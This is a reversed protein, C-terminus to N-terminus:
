VSPKRFRLTMRDSEGISLYFEKDSDGLSLSPPLTWVGKPHNTTDKENSNIESSAEFVFGANKALEIVYEETVYGSNKMTKITAGPKARHQVIGLIGGPKLAKFFLAFANSESNSRLWSHVNRFTLVADVSDNDVTLINQGADFIAIRVNKFLQPDSKIRKVYNDRSRKYYARDSDPNFHAAFLTGELYPALVETYWGGGPSIELVDMEPNLGFFELTSYPNRYKDRSTDRESQVSLATISLMLLVAAFFIGSQHLHRGNMRKASM